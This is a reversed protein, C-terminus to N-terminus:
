ISRQGRRATGREVGFELSLASLIIDGPNQGVTPTLTWVLRLSTCLQRKLHHRVHIAPAASFTTSASLGSDPAEDFDYLPQYSMSFGQAAEVLLVARWIRQLGQIGAWQMWSTGVKIPRVQGDTGGAAPMYDDFGSTDERLVHTGDSFVPCQGLRCAAAGRPAPQGTFTAWQRTNADYCYVLTTGEATYFRVEQRHPVDMAGTITLPRYREVADGVALTDLSRTLLHIGSTAKFFVGDRSRVVSRWDLAGLSGTLYRPNSFGNDTGARNPGYGTVVYDATETKIILADDVTAFAVVRGSGSPVRFRLAENWSTGSEYLVPLSVEVSLPDDMSDTLVYDLHRHATTYGRPPLHVLEGGTSGGEPGTSYIAENDIISSDAVGDVVSAFEPAGSEPVLYAGAGPTTRHFNLGNTESRYLVIRVGRKRTLIPTPISFAVSGTSGTTTVSIPTSPASQHRRGIADTWEYVAVWVRTGATLSGGTTQAAATIGEPFLHFGDEVFQTGDYYHPCAGGLHLADGDVVNSISSPEVERLILAALTSPTLDALIGEEVDLLLRGRRPIVVGVSGNGFDLPRPLAPGTLPAAESALARAVVKRSNVSLIFATPQIGADTFSSGGYRPMYICGVLARGNIIFPRTLLRLGHAFVEAAQTVGSADFSVVELPAQTLPELIATVEGSAMRVMGVRSLGATASTTSTSLTVTASPTLTASYYRAEIRASPINRYLLQVGGDATAGLTLGELIPVAANLPGMVLDLGGGPTASVQFGVMVTRNDTTVAVSWEEGLPHHVNAAWRVTATTSVGGPGIMETITPQAVDDLLPASGGGGTSPTYTFLGKSATINWSSGLGYALAAPSPNIILGQFAIPYTSGADNLIDVTLSAPGVGGSVRALTVQARESTVVWEAATTFTQCAAVSFGVTLGSSTNPVVVNRRLSTGGSNAYLYAIGGGQETSVFPGTVASRLVQRRLRYNWNSGQTNEKLTFTFGMGTDIVPAAQIEPTWEINNVRRYHVGPIEFVVDISYEWFGVEPIMIRSVRVYTASMQWGDGDTPGPAGNLAAPHYCFLAPYQAPNTTRNSSVPTSPPGEVKLYVTRPINSNANFVDPDTGDPGATQTVTVSATRTITASIVGCFSYAARTAAIASAPPSGSGSSVTVAPAQTVKLAITGNFTTTPQITVGPAPIGFTNFVPSVTTFVESAGTYCAIAQGASNSVADIEFPFRPGTRFGVTGPLFQTEATWTAPTSAHLVRYCPTGRDVDTQVIYFVAVANGFAVLRPQFRWVELGQTTSALLSADQYTARTVRDVVSSRLARRTGEAAEEVETWVVVDLNGVSACDHAEVSRARAIMHEVSFSLPRAEDEEARKVWPVSPPAETARSYVGDEAWRLVEDGRAAVALATDLEGGGSVADTLLRSGPRRRIAGGELIGNELDLLKAPIVRKRETKTDLGGTLEVQIDQPILPGPM